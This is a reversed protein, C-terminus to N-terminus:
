YDRIVYDPDDQYGYGTGFQRRAGMVKSRTIRKPPNDQGNIAKARIRVDALDKRLDEKVGKKGTFAYAMNLALKIALYEKFIEDFKNVNTEDKIYGIYLTSDGGNNILLNGGEIQYDINVLGYNTEGIFRLRLFDNPLPYQDAYEFAPDTADRSLTARSKAFNWPHARLVARRTTDYWRNCVTEEFTEPEDLNTIPNAKLLDLAMNCIAVAVNVHAM